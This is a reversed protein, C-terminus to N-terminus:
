QMYTVLAARAVEAGASRVIRLADGARALSVVAQEAASWPTVNSRLSIFPGAAVATRRTSNSLLAAVLRSTTLAVTECTSNHVNRNRVKLSAEPKHTQALVNPRCNVDQHSCDSPEFQTHVAGLCWRPMRAPLAGFVAPCEAVVCGDKVGNQLSRRVLQIDFQGGSGAWVCSVGIWAIPGTLLAGVVDQIKDGKSTITNFRTRISPHEPVQYTERVPQGLSAGPSGGWCSFNRGKAVQVTPLSARLARSVCQVRALMSLEEKTGLMMAIKLVVETPM